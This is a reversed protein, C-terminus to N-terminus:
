AALPLVSELQRRLSLLDFPKVLYGSAGTDLAVKVQEPERVGTAMIFPTMRTRPHRRLIKLLQLGDIDNMLWDSIIVDMPQRELVTLAERGSRAERIFNAGLARLQGRLIDRMTKQDDVVLFRLESLQVM